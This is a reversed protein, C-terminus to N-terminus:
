FAPARKAAAVPKDLAAKCEMYRVQLEAQVTEFDVADAWATEFASRLEPLTTALVMGGELASATPAAKRAAPAPAPAPAGGVQLPYCNAGAMADLTDEEVKGDPTWTYATQPDGAKGQRIVILERSYLKGLGVAKKLGVLGRFASSGMEWTQRKRTEVNWLDVSFSVYPGTKGEKEVEDPESLLVVRAQEGDDALKFWKGTNASKAARQESSDWGM